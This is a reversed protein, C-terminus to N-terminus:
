LCFLNPPFSVGSWDELCHIKTVTELEDRTELCKAWTTQELISLQPAFNPWDMNPNFPPVRSWTGHPFLLFSVCLSVIFGSIFFSGLASPDLIRIIGWVSKWVQYWIIFQKESLCYHTETMQWHFSGTKFATNMESHYIYHSIPLVGCM